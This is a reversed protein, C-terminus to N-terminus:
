FIPVTMVIDWSANVFNWDDRLIMKQYNMSSNFKIPHLKKTKLFKVVFSQSVNEQLAMETRTVHAQRWLPLLFNLKTNENIEVDHFMEWTEQKILNQLLEVLQAELYQLDKSNYKPSCLWKHSKSLFISLCFVYKNVLRM